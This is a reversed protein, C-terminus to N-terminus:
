GIVRNKLFGLVIRSFEEPDEEYPLHGVGPMIAMEAGLAQQLQRGSDLEVVPDRDGWILLTPIKNLHPLRERLAETDAILTQLSSRIHATMGAERLPQRYGPGIDAPLRTIKGCMRRIAYEWIPIPAFPALRIFIGGASSLYFKVARHYGRAFPNAPSVLILRRVRKPAVAALQLAVAGGHSSGLVDASEVGEADLLHLIRSATAQLSGDAAAVRLDPLYLCFDRSLQPSILRFSFSSAVIGHLLVLPAGSGQVLYRL